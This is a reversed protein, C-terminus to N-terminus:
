SMFFWDLVFCLRGIKILFDCGIHSKKINFFVFYESGSEQEVDSHLIYKITMGYISISQTIHFGSFLYFSSGIVYNIKCISTWVLEFGINEKRM